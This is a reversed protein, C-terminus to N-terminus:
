YSTERCGELCYAAPEVGTERELYIQTGQFTFSIV